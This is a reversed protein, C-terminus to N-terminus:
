VEGNPHIVKIGQSDFEKDFTKDLTFLIIQCIGDTFDTYLMYKKIQRLTSGFSEIKPKIEIYFRHNIREKWDPHIIQTQFHIVIDWFGIVSKYYGGKLLIPQECNIKFDDTTLEPFLKKINNKDMLYCVLKDHEPTLVMKNGIKRLNM